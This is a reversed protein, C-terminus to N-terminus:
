DRVGVGLPGPGSFPRTSPTARAPLGKRPAVQQALQLRHVRVARQSQVEGQLPSGIGPPIGPPYTLARSSGHLIRAPGSGGGRAVQGQGQGQGQSDRCCSLISLGIGNEGGWGGGGAGAVAVVGEGQVSVHQGVRVRVRLAGAFARGGNSRM